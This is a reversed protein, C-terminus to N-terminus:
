MRKLNTQALAALNGVVMTVLALVAVAPQWKTALGPLAQLFVRLFAGFAAAKVGAAMLATVTTPAGEYADPAWMHFPVSAVKFGFGVLLFATGVLALASAAGPTGALPSVVGGRLAEAIPVLSTRGTLGYLVAIGYLLFASSFSGTIFYKLAAEQSQE